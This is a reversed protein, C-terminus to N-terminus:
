KVQPQQAPCVYPMFGVDNPIIYRINPPILFLAPEMKTKVREEGDKWTEIERQKIADSSMAPYIVVIENPGTM